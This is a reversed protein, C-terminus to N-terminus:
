YDSRREGIGHGEGLERAVMLRSETEASKGVRSIEYMSEHLLKATQTQSRERLMNELHVWTKSHILVENMRVSTTENYLCM